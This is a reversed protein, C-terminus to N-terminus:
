SPSTPRSRRIGREWPANLEIEDTTISKVKIVESAGHARAIEVVKANAEAADRAWHVGPRRGATM